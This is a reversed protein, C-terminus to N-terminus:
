REMGVQISRVEDVFSAVEADMEDFGDSPPDSYFALMSVRNVDYVSLVSEDGAIHLAGCEPQNLASV